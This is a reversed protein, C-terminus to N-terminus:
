SISTKKKSIKFITHVLSFLVLFFSGYKRPNKIMSFFLLKLASSKYILKFILYFYFSIKAITTIVGTITLNEPHKQPNQGAQSKLFANEAKLYNEEDEELWPDMEIIESLSM